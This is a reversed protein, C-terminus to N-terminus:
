KGAPQAKAKGIAGIAIYNMVIRQKTWDTKSDPASRNDFASGTYGSNTVTSSYVGYVHGSTTEDFGTTVTPTGDFVRPFTFSFQRTHPDAPWSPKLEASGWCILMGDVELCGGRSDSQVALGRLRKEAAAVRTELDTMGKGIDHGGLTFKGRVTLNGDNTAEIVTKGDKDIVTIGDAVLKVLKEPAAAAVALLSVLGVAVVAFLRKQSSQRHLQSELQDLREEITM